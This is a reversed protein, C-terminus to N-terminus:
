VLSFFPTLKTLALNSLPELKNQKSFIMQKMRIFADALCSPFGALLFYQMLLVGRATDREMLREIPM